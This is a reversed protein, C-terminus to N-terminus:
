LTKASEFRNADLSEMGSLAKESAMTIELGLDILMKKIEILREEYKQLM